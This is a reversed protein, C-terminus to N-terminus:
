KHFIYDIKVEFKGEQVNWKLMDKFFREWFLDYEMRMSHPIRYFRPNSIPPNINKLVGENLQNAISNLSNFLSVQNAGIAYTRFASDISDNVKEDLIVIENKLIGLYCSWHSLKNFEVDSSTRQQFSNILEKAEECSTELVSLNPLQLLEVYKEKDFSQGAIQSDPMVEILKKKIISKLEGNLMTGINDLTLPANINHAQYALLVENLSRKLDQLFAKFQEIKYKSEHLLIKETVAKATMPNNM